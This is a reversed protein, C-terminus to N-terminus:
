AESGFELQVDGFLVKEKVKMVLGLEGEERSAAM